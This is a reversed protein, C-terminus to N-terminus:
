AKDIKISKEAKYKKAINTDNFIILERRKESDIPRPRKLIFFIVKFEISNRAFKFGQSYIFTGFETLYNALEIPMETFFENGIFVEEPVILNLKETIDSEM